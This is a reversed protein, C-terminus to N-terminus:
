GTTAPTRPPAARCTSTTPHPSATSSASARRRPAWAAATRSSNQTLFYTTSSFTYSRGGTSYVHGPQEPSVGTVKNYSVKAASKPHLNLSRTLGSLQLRATVPAGDAVLTANYRGRPLTVTSPGSEPQVFPRGLVIEQRAADPRCGRLYCGNSTFLGISHDGAGLRNLVLGVSRGNGVVSGQTTRLSGNVTIASRRALYFTSYGSTSGSMTLVPTAARTRTTAAPVTEASAAEAVGASLLGTAALASALLAARALAPRTSRM